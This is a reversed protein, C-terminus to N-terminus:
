GVYIFGGQERAYASVAEICRGAMLICPRYGM